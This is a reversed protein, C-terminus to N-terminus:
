PYSNASSFNFKLNLISVQNKEDLIIDKVMTGNVAPHERRFTAFPLFFNVSFPCHNAM